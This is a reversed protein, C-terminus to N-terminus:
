FGGKKNITNKARIFDQILLAKKRPKKFPFVKEWIRKDAYEYENDSGHVPVLIEGWSTEGGECVKGTIINRVM